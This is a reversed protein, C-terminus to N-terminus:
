GRTESALRLEDLILKGHFTSEWMGMKSKCNGLCARIALYLKIPTKRKWNM